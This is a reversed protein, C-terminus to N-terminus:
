FIKSTLKTQVREKNKLLNIDPVFITEEIGELERISFGYLDLIGIRGALSESVDKMTQFVQSGTLYYLTGVEKGDGFM